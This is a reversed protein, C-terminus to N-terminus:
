FIMLLISVVHGFFLNRPTNRLSLGNIYSSNRKQFRNITESNLQNVSLCVHQYVNLSPKLFTTGFAHTDEFEEYVLVSFRLM